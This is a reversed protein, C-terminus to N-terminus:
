RARGTVATVGHLKLSNIANGVTDTVPTVGTVGSKITEGRMVRILSDRLEPRM